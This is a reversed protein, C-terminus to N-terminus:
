EVDGHDPYDLVYGYEGNLVSAALKNSRSYIRHLHGLFLGKLDTAPAFGEDSRSLSRPDNPRAIYPTVLIVLESQANKYDKSRFLAGLVPLHRLGPVGDINQRTQDSLLGAMALSSGSPMEVATEARRVQLAPITIAQLTVAGQSSLESVEAAVKLNIRGESLVLPTFSINVGFQKWTVSVTNNQVAVPIPFEGGALFKATEGSIATLTPEALTRSLGAREFAEIMATATNGNWNGTAQFASGVSVAPVNGAGAFIAGPAVVSSAPFGHQIVKTFTFAGAKAVAEPLNVGLRRVADRQIEAVTIKLLVQERERVSVLNVVPGSKLFQKALEEARGADASRAVSGSLVVGDGSAALKLHSGPLYHAIMERLESLDRRVNVDLVLLRRGDRGLFFVNANGMEKGYILIRRATHVSADVTTTNSVIVDQNDTPLEVIMAKHLGLTVKRYAPLQSTSGIRLVSNAGGLAEQQAVAGSQPFAVAAIAILTVM